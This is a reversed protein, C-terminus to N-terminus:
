IGYSLFYLCFYKYFLVDIIVFVWWEETVIEIGPDVQRHTVATDEPTDQVPVPGPQELRVLEVEQEGDENHRPLKWFM